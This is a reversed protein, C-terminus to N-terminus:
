VKDRQSDLFEADTIDLDESNHYSLDVYIKETKNEKDGLLKTGTVSYNFKDDIGCALVVADEVLKISNSADRATYRKNYVFAFSLDIVHKNEDFDKFYDKINAKTLQKVISDKVEAYDPNLYRGGNRRSLYMANVSPIKTVNLITKFEKM